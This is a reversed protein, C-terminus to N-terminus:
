QLQAELSKLEVRLDYIQSNYYDLWSEGTRETKMEVECVARIRKLDLEILEEKIEDIRQQTLINQKDSEYNPNKIIEGNSFIYKLNDDLFENYVEQSVEINQVGETLQIVEGCGNIKGEEVFIYKKEM